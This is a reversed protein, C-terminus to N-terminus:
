LKLSSQCRRLDNVDLTNNLSLQVRAKKWLRAKWALRSDVQSELLSVLMNKQAEWLKKRWQRETSPLQMGSRMQLKMGPKLQRKAGHLLLQLHM